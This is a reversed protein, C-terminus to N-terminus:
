ISKSNIIISLSIQLVKEVDSSAVGRARQTLVLEFQSSLFSAAEKDTLQSKWQGNKRSLKFFRTYLQLIKRDIEKVKAKTKPGLQSSDARMKIFLCGNENCSDRSLFNSITELKVKFNESGFLITELQSFSLQFYIELAALSLGDENGFERYLSPKAIGALECISNLSASPGEKWFSNMAQNTVKERDFTKPRGRKKTTKM